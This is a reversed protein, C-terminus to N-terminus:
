STPYSTEVYFIPPGLYWFCSFDEAAANYSPMWQSNRGDSKTQVFTFWSSTFEDPAEFTTTDRRKAPIFRYESYYPLEISVMPNVATPHQISGNYTELTDNLLGGLPTGTNAPITAVTSGAYDFVNARCMLVTTNNEQNLLPSTDVAYRMGGRMGAYAMSVYRVPTMRVFTYPDGSGIFYTPPGTSVSNETYGPLLPIHPRDYKLFVDGTTATPSMYEYLAYRKLIQRFSGVVEGFHVLSSPDTTPTLNGMTDKPAVDSPVVNMTEESQPLVEFSQPQTTNASNTVRLDEIVADTPVAVEFDDLMKVLVNVEIDNDIVSNPVTLENV